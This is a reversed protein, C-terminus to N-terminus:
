NKISFLRARIRSLSQPQIGLYSAIIALPLREFIQPQNTLLELYRDEATQTLLKSKSKATEIFLREAILRGFREFRQSKDYLEQMDTYSLMFLETDELAEIHCFTPTKLLFSEYDGLWEGEFAFGLTQDGKENRIFYRLAGQHVIVMSNCVQGPKLYFTYKKLRMPKLKQMFSFLEEDTFKVLSRLSHTIVEYM